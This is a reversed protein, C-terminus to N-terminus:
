HLDVLQHLQMIRSKTPTPMVHGHLVINYPKPLPIYMPLNNGMNALADLDNNGHIDQYDQYTTVQHLERHGPTWRVTLHKSTVKKYSYPDRHDHDKVVGKRPVSTAKVVGQNGLIIEARPRALHSAVAYAFSEAHYVQQPGPM